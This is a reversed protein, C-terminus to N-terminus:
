EGIRLKQNLVYYKGEEVNLPLTLYITTEDNSIFDISLMPKDVYISITTQKHVDDISDWYLNKIQNTNDAYNIRYKNCPTNQYNTEGGNVTSNNLKIASQIYQNGTDEDIVNITNLFNLDVVEYINKTWQQTNNILEENTESILDNQTITTDNLYTNPIEVSSMTMNNQVSINYLNRSFILSGNSYLNSYLPIFVNENIYPEGNYQNSNYIEKVLPFYWTAKRTNIPFCYIKILNYSNEVFFGRQYLICNKQQGVLIPEWSGNYRQIYYDATKTENDYNNCYEIYIDGQNQTLFISEKEIYYEPLVNKGLYKEYIQTLTSNSFDYKYLAIHKDEESASWTIQQNSVVFYVENQNKFVCQNEYRFSTIQDDPYTSNTYVTSTTLTDSNYNKTYEKIGNGLDFSALIRFFPENNQNFSIFSGGYRCRTTSTTFTWHKWENPQGVNITLQIAHTLNFGAYDANTNYRMGIFIYNSSNPDKMMNDVRINNYQEDFGESQDTSFNYSTRLNLIYEDNVPVTFDNTMVFRRQTDILFEPGSIEYYSFMTDDVMYFSNDEAQKLCQIYRLPTGSSFSDIYKIPKFNNDVITIFGRGEKVNDVYYGGYIVSKDGINTKIIGEIHMNSYKRPVYGVWDNRNAEIIEKIIEDTTPSTTQLNGTAYDILNKKYEETM